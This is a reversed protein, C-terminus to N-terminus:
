YSRSVQGGLIGHLANNLTAQHRAKSEDNQDFYSPDSGATKKAEKRDELYHKWESRVSYALDSCGTITLLVLIVATRRM